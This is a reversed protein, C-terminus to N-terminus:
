HIITKQAHGLLRYALYLLGAALLGAGIRLNVVAYLAFVLGTWALLLGLWFERRTRHILLILALLFGIGLLIVGLSFLTDFTM